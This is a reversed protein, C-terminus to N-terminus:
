VCRGKSVLLFNRGFFIKANEWSKGEQFTWVASYASPTSSRLGPHLSASGQTSIHTLPGSQFLPATRRPSPTRSSSVNLINSMNKTNTDIKPISLYVSAGEHSVWLKLGSPPLLARSIPDNRLRGTEARRALPHIMIELTFVSSTFPGTLIPPLTVLMPGLTNSGFLAVRDQEEPFLHAVQFQKRFHDPM